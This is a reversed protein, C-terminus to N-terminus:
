SEVWVTSLGPNKHLPANAGQLDCQGGQLDYQGGLIRRVRTQGRKCFRSLFGTFQGFISEVASGSLQLLSVFHTSHQSLVDQCFETVCAKSM